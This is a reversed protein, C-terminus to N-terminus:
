ICYVIRFFKSTLFSTNRNTKYFFALVEADSLEAASSIGVCVLLAFGAVFARM